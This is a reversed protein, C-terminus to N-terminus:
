TATLGLHNPLHFHPPSRSAPLGTPIRVCVTSSNEQNSQDFIDSHVHLHSSAAPLIGSLQHTDAPSDASLHPFSSPSHLSFSASAAALVQKTMPKTNKKHVSTASYSDIRNSRQPSAFWLYISQTAHDTEDSSATAHDAGARSISTAELTLLLFM